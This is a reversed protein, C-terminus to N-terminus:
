RLILLLEHMDCPRHMLQTILTFNPACTVLDCHTVHPYTDANLRGCDCIVNALHVFNFDAPTCVPEKRPLYITTSKEKGEEQIAVKLYDASINKKKLITGSFNFTDM